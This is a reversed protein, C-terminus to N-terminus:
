DVTKNLNIVFLIDDYRGKNNRLDYIEIYKKYKEDVLETLINTWEITQVDEVILIGDDKLLKIYNKVFFIMSELTHPGDDIIIDFKINKSLLNNEFFNYDYADFRGLKIRDKNTIEDWLQNAKIIDLGYITANLFYDYWLKISGGSSIGIEMVNEADNKKSSFLTEYTELYSHVTNKDSRDNNILGSLM